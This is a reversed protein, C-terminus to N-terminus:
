VSVPLIQTFSSSNVQCAKAKDSKSALFMYSFFYRYRYNLLTEMLESHSTLLFTGIINWFTTWNNVPQSWRLSILAVHPRVAYRGTWYMSCIIVVGWRLRCWCISGSDAGMLTLFLPQSSAGPPVSQVWHSKVKLVDLRDKFHVM